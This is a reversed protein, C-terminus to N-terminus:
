STTVESAVDFSIGEVDVEPEPANLANLTVEAKNVGLGLMASTSPTLPSTRQGMSSSCSSSPGAISTMGKSSSPTPTKSVLVSLSTTDYPKKQNGVRLQSVTREKVLETIKEMDDAFRKVAHRLMEVEEESWKGGASIEASPHLQMTLKALSTFAVGAASFIEGVKSAANM